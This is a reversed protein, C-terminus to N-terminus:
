GPPRDDQEEQEAQEERELEASIAGMLWARVSEDRAAASARLRRVLAVAGAGLLEDTLRALDADDPESPPTPM